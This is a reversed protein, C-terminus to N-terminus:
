KNTASKNVDPPLLTGSTLLDERIKEELNLILIDQTNTATIVYKRVPELAHALTELRTRQLYVAPSADYAVMQNTFRAAEGEALAVRTM